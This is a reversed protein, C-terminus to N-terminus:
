HFAPRTRKGGRAFGKGGHGLGAGVPVGGAQACARAEEMAMEMFQLDSMIGASSLMGSAAGGNEGAVTWSDKVDMRQCFLSDDHLFEDLSKKLQIHQLSHANGEAGLMGLVNVGFLIRELAG